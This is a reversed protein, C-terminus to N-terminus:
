PKPRRMSTLTTAKAIAPHPKLNVRWKGAADQKFRAAPYRRENKELKDLMAEDLRALRDAISSRASIPLWGDALEATMEVHCQLGLHKGIVFGQAADESVVFTAPQLNPPTPVCVTPNGLYNAVADGGHREVVECLKSAVWDFAAEWEMEVWGDTTRRIPKRLRDADEYLDKLAVAKPCIHGHSLPDADDPRISLIEDGAVRIELGCIAECLNCARHHIREAATNTSM